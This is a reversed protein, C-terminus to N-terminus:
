GYQDEYDGYCKEQQYVLEVGCGEEEDCQYCQYVCNCVEYDCDNGCVVVQCDIVFVLDWM